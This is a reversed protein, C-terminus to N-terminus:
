PGGGDIGDPFSVAAIEWIFPVEPFETLYVIQGLTSFTYTTPGGVADFAASFTSVDTADISIVPADTGASWKLIVQQGVLSQDLISPLTYTSLSTTDIVSIRGNSLTPAGANVDVRHWVQQYGSLLANTANIQTIAFDADGALLDLAEGADDPSIGDPLATWTGPSAPGYTVDAADPSGGTNDIWEDDFDTNSVKALIQGTTGGTPVGEGTDGKLGQDGFDITFAAPSQVDVTIVPVNGTEVTIVPNSAVEVTIDPM